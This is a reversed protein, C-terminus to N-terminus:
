IYGQTFQVHNCDLLDKQRFISSVNSLEFLYVHLRKMSQEFPALNCGHLHMSFNCDNHSLTDFKAFNWTEM